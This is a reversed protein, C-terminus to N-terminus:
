GTFALVVLRAAEDAIAGVEADGAAAWSTLLGNLAGALAVGTLTFDRAPVLGEGALRTAELEILTAFRGIATQRAAEVAPSVGVSEVVAVRAFRRDATMHDLYARTGARARADIDGPDVDALASVVAAMAGANIQDHLAILLGERSGFEEYFNRTSVGAGSCIAEITTARYGQTGFAEAAFDLLRARRDGRREDVTKRGYRRGETATTMAGLIFRTLASTLYTTEPYASSRTVTRVLDM